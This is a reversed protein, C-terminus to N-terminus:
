KVLKIEFDLGTESELVLYRSDKFGALYDPASALLMLLYKAKTEQLNVVAYMCYDDLDDTYIRNTMESMDNCESGFVLVDGERSPKPVSHESDLLVVVDGDTDRLMSETDYALTALSLLSRLRHSSKVLDVFEDGHIGAYIMAMKAAYRQCLGADSIRRIAGRSQDLLDQVEDTGGYFRVQLEIEDDDLDLEGIMRVDKVNVGPPLFMRYNEEQEAPLAALNGYIVIDDDDYGAMRTYDDTTCFSLDAEQAMLEEIVKKAPLADNGISGFLLLTNDNYAMDIEDLLTAWMLGDREKPKSCYGEHHLDEFADTLKDMNGVAATIGIGGEGLQFAYVSQKIDLAMFVNTVYENDIDIRRAIDKVAIKAVVNANRPIVKTYDESKSCGALVFLVALLLASLAFNQHKNM